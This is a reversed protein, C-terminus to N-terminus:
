EEKVKLIHTEFFNNLEEKSEFIAAFTEVVGDETRPATISIWVGDSCHCGELGCGEGSSMTIRGNVEVAGGDKVIGEPNVNTYKCKEIKM